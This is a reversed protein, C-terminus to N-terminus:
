FRIGCDYPVIIHYRDEPLIMRNAYLPSISDDFTYYNLCWQVLGEWKNFYCITITALNKSYEVKPLLGHSLHKAKVRIEIPLDHFDEPCTILKRKVYAGHGFTPLIYQLNDLLFTDWIGDGNWDGILAHQLPSPISGIMTEQIIGDISLSVDYNNSVRYEPKPTKIFGLKQLFNKKFPVEELMPSYDGILKNLHVYPACYFGPGNKGVRYIGLQLNKNDFKVHNFLDLIFSADYIAYYDPEGFLFNEAIRENVKNVLNSLYVSM